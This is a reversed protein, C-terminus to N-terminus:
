TLNHSKLRRKQLFSFFICFCIIGFLAGFSDLFVDAIKGSRGLVFLQHVEDSCAYTFSFFCSLLVSKRNFSLYELFLTITSVGLLFYLWFHASKRVFYSLNVIFMSVWSISVHSEIFEVFWNSLTLSDHAEQNSLYFILCLLFVFCVWKLIKQLM